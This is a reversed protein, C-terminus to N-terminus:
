QTEASINSNRKGLGLLYIESSRGRSAEPKRTVVRSFTTRMTRLFGEFGSGQFVKVLFNGGYNLREGSFELALEALYMGRAQDTVGIGTINPSMDSIVLDLPYKELHKKLEALVPAETFDGQIFTVGPLAKMELLDLAIVRGKGGLKEAAVQSWGGPAAGLDVVTMGQWFLHDREAIEILKYAARSRYGEKKAQKVFFDNVHEKMWTKSTKSRKM